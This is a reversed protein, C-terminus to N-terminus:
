LYIHRCQFTFLIGIFVYTSVKNIVEIRFRIRGVTLNFSFVMFFLFWAPQFFVVFTVFSPLMDHEKFIWTSYTFFVTNMVTILGIFAYSCRLARKYNFMEGCLEFFRQDIMFLLNYTRSFCKRNLYSTWFLLPMGIFGVVKHLLDSFKSIDSQIFIRMVSEDKAFSLFFCVGFVAILLSTNLLGIKRYVLRREGVGGELTYPTFGLAFSTTILLLSSTYVDTPNRLESWFDPIM